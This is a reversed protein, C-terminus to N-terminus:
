SGLSEWAFESTHRGGEKEPEEDEPEKVPDKEEMWEEFTAQVARQERAVDHSLGRRDVIDPSRYEM